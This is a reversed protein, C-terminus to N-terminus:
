CGMSLRAALQRTRISFRVRAQAVRRGALKEVAAGMTAILETAVILLEVVIADLHRKLIQTPLIKKRTTLWSVSYRRRSVVRGAVGSAADSM